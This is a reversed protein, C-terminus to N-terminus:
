PRALRPSYGGGGAKALTMSFVSKIDFFRFNETFLNSFTPSNTLLILITPLDFLRHILM